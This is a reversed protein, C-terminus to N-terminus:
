HETADLFKLEVCAQVEHDKIVGSRLMAELTAAFAQPNISLDRPIVKKSVFERCARRAHEPMMNIEGLVVEAATVPDDYLAEV